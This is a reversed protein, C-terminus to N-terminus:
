AHAQTCNSQPQSALLVHLRGTWKPNFGTFIETITRIEIKAVLLWASSHADREDWRTWSTVGALPLTQARRVRETPVAAMRARDTDRRSLQFSRVPTTMIRPSTWHELMLKCHRGKREGSQRVRFARCARGSKRWGIERVGRCCRQHTTTAMTETTAPESVEAAPESVEATTPESVKATTPESVKATTSESVKATKPKAVKAKGGAVREDTMKVSREEDMPEASRCEETWDASMDEKTPREEDAGGNITVIGPTRPQAVACEECPAWIPPLTVAPTAAPLKTVSTWVLNLTVCAPARCSQPAASPSPTGIDAM